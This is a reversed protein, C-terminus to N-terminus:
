LASGNSLRVSKQGGLERRSLPPPRSRPTCPATTSAASDQPDPNPRAAPTSRPDEGSGGRSRRRGGTSVVLTGPESVAGGPWGGDAYSTALSVWGPRIHCPERSRSPGGTGVLTGRRAGWPAACHRERPATWVPRHGRPGPSRTRCAGRELAPPTTFGSVNVTCNRLLHFGPQAGLAFLGQPGWTSRGGGEGSGPEPCSHTGPRAAQRSHRLRAPAPM